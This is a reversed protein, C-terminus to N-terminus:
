SNMHRSRTLGLVTSTQKGRIGKKYAILVCFVPITAVCEGGGLLFGGVGLGTVRGGAVSVNHPALAAYVDDFNLGTGVVVTQTTSDYTVESFRYMAM